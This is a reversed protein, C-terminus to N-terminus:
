ILEVGGRLFEVRLSSVNLLPVGPDAHPGDANCRVITLEIRTVGPRIPVHLRFPGQPSELLARHGGSSAVALLYHSRGLSTGPILNGSLRLWGAQRAHVYLSTPASTLWFTQSRGARLYGIRPEVHIVSAACKMDDRLRWLEYPGGRWVRVAANSLDQGSGPHDCLIYRIGGPSPTSYLRADHRQVPRDALCSQPNAVHLKRDRLYYVAALQSRWDAVTVLVEAPGIVDAAARLDDRLASSPIPARSNTWIPTRPWVSLAFSALLGASIMAGGVLQRLRGVAGLRDLVWVAGTVLAGAFCWWTLSLLKLCPYGYHLHVASYWSGVAAMLISASIGGHQKRGLVAMGILALVSFVIGLPNSAARHPTGSTEGGLGWVVGAYWDHHHPGPLISSTDFAGHLHARIYTLSAAATPLILVLSASAAYASGRLWIRWPARRRCFRPWALLGVPGLLFLAGAPYTHWLAAVITSILLWKRRRRSGWLDFLAALTPLYIAALLNDLQNAWVLAVTWGAVLTLATAAFAFTFTRRHVCWFLFVACALCFLAWAQVLPMTRLTNGRDLLPSFFGLFGAGVCRHGPYTAAIRHVLNANAARASANVRECHRRHPWLAFPMLPDDRRVRDFNRYDAVGCQWAYQGLASYFFGDFAMGETSQTLGGRFAGPMVALPLLASAALAPISTRLAPWGRLGAAALVASLGWLWPAARGVPIGAAAAMGLVLSWFVFAMVPALVPAVTARTPMGLLQLLGRGVLATLTCLGLYLGMDGLWAICGFDM